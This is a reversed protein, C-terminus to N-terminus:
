KEYILKSEYDNVITEVLNYGNNELEEKEQEAIRISTIDGQCFSITKKM